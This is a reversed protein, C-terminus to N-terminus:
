ILPYKLMLMLDVGFGDNDIVNDGVDYDVM